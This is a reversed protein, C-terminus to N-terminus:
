NTKPGRKGFLRALLFSIGVIAAIIAIDILADGLSDSVHAGAEIFGSILVVAAVALIALQRRNGDLKM